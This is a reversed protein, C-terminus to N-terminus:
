AAEPPPTYTADDSIFRAGKARQHADDIKDAVVLLQAAVKRCTEADLTISFRSVMPNGFDAYSQCLKDSGYLHRIESLPPFSKGYDPAYTYDSM